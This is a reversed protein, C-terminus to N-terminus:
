SEIATKRSEGAQLPLIWQTLSSPKLTLSRAIWAVKRLRIHSTVLERLDLQRSAHDIDIEVLNGDDILAHDPVQHTRVSLRM